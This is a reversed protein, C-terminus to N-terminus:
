GKKYEEGVNEERESEGEMEGDSTKLINFSFGKLM